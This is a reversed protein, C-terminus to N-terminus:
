IKSHHMIVEYAVGGTVSTPVSIAIRGILGKTLSQIGEHLVLQAMVPLTYRKGYCQMGTQIRTKCIDFPNSFASAFVGATGSAIVLNGFSLKNQPSSKLKPNITPVSAQFKNLQVKAGEFTIWWIMGGPLLTALTAGTGKFFNRISRSSTERDGKWVNMITQRANMGNVVGEAQLTQTIVDQPVKVVVSACEAVAGAVGPLLFNPIAWIQDARKELQRLSANYCAFYILHYPLSALLTFSLGHYLGRGVGYTSVQSKWTTVFSKFFTQPLPSVQLRVTVLDLPYFVCLEASLLSTTLGAYRTLSIGPWIDDISERITM